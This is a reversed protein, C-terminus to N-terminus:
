HEDFYVAEGHKLEWCSHENNIVCEGCYKPCHFAGVPIHSDVDKRFKIAAVPLNYPNYFYWDGWASLVINLNDPLKGHQEIRSNVLEYKKTFCLFKTGPLEEAVRVMMDLYDADPIDGSSHWRFYKATFAAVVVANEYVRPFCKWICLNTNLLDRNHPFCYRGKLAYCKRRNACPADPRCTVKAPLSVSPISAGLKSIGYSIHVGHEM